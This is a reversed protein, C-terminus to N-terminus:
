ATRRRRALLTVGSGVALGLLGGAVWSTVPTSTASTDAKPATAERHAPGTTVGTASGPGIGDGVVVAGTMSPHYSCAFPYIGEERFTATFSDGELMEDAHGWGYASVNHAIPDMNTFTVETGPDVRLISPDFCAKVMDVRDGTGETLGRHCGGGASASPGLPSLISAGVAAAVLGARISRGPM